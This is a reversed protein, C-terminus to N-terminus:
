SNFKRTRQDSTRPLPLDETRIYTAVRHAPTTIRQVVGEKALQQIGARVQGISLSPVLPLLDYTNFEGSPLHPRLMNARAESPSKRWVIVPAPKPAPKPDPDPVHKPKPKAIPAVVRPILHDPILARVRPMVADDDLGLLSLLHRRYQAWEGGRASWFTVAQASIHEHPSQLDELAQLLIAVILTQEPSAAVVRFTSPDARSTM